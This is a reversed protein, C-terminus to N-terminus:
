ALQEVLEMRLKVFRYFGLVPLLGRIDLTCNRRPRKVNPYRMRRMLALVAHLANIPKSISSVKSAEDM